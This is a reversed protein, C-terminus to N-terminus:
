VGIRKVVAREVIELLLLLALLNDPGDKVDIGVGGEGVAFSSRKGIVQDNNVLRLQEIMNPSDFRALEGFLFM